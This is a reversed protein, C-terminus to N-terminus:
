KVVTAANTDSQVTRLPRDPGCWKSPRVYLRDMEHIPRFIAGPVGGYDPYAYWRRNSTAGVVPKVLIVYIVVYALAVSATVM